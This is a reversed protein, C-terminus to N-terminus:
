GVVHGLFFEERQMLSIFFSNIPIAPICAGFNDIMGCYIIM